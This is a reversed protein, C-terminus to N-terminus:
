FNVDQMDYLGNKQHVIWRAARIAAWAFIDGYGMHPALICRTKAALGFITEMESPSLGSTGIVIAINREAALRLHRFDTQHPIFDIIVDVERRTAWLVDSIIIGTREMGIHDGIDTGVLPHGEQEIAGALEIGDTHFINRTIIQGILRGAGTVIARVM